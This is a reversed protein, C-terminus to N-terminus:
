VEQMHLIEYENVVDGLIHSALVKYKKDNYTILDGDGIAITKSAILILTHSVSVNVDNDNNTIHKEAIYGEFSVKNEKEIPRNLSDLTTTTSTCLLNYTNIKSTTLIVFKKQEDTIASVVFYHENDFTLAASNRVSKDYRVTFAHTQLSAKGFQSYVCRKDKIEINAWRTFSSKWFGNDYKLFTVKNTLKSVDM